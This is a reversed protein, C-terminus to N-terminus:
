RGAAKSLVAPSSISCDRTAPFRDKPASTRRPKSSAAGSIACGFGTRPSARPSHIIRTLLGAPARRMDLGNGVEVFSQRQQPGQWICRFAGLLLAGSRLPLAPEPDERLCREVAADDGEGLAGAEGALLPHSALRAAARAAGARTLQVLPPELVDARALLATFLETDAIEGFRALRQRSLEPERSGPTNLWPRPLAELEQPTRDGLYVRHPPYAVAQSFDRLAGDIRREIEPDSRIERRPKSGYRVWEPVHALCYAFNRIVPNASPM